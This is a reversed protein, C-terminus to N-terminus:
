ECLGRPVSKIWPRSTFSYDSIWRPSCYSMFDWTAPPVLKERAVDYGWAGISGNSTPFAPDIQAIAVCPAHGLSMNHGLEHAIGWAEPGAVFSARYGDALGAAGFFPGSIVGMYQGTAGEMRRLAETLPLLVFADSSSTFVPAHVRVNLDGVPLWTRLPEFYEHQANVGRLRDVIASDPRQSWLFPVLTLDLVPMTHVEVPLRGTEPIRRPLALEPDLTGYPDIHIVMELGPRVVDGPIEANASLDLDGEVMEAPVLAARSAIHVSHVLAGNIHFDARIPPIRAGATETGVVFVRLLADEGAVLPVPFEPSQVAQTLYAVSGSLPDCRPVWSVPVATLWDQFDSDTPACLGTQSTRLTTLEALAAMSSPLVGSLQPNDNLALWRLDALNGIETPLTGTLDNEALGLVQLFPPSTIEPPIPGGLENDGLTLYVLGRARGLAAPISGELKNGALELNSLSSLDGLEPPISGTLLNSGLGLARLSGLDGLERPIAGTLENGSLWLTRLRGLEGLEPPVPGTLSNNDLFLEDLRDLGGLEPPITGTLEPNSRLGLTTLNTLQGLEPPLIGVLGNGTLYLRTVRGAADTEVGHWNRLSARSAWNANDIWDAGGTSEYLAVLIDRDSLAACELGTGERSPVANMWARFVEDRPECLGTGNYGFDRLPLARLTLPLRGSLDNDAIRLRSIRTLQGLTAPLSGTLGNGALDLSVVRGLSDTEVGYWEDLSGTLWGEFNTWDAGGTALYLSTLVARDADNCIPNPPTSMGDLWDLFEGTGPICLGANGSVDIGGPLDLELFENPIAGTLRNRALVLRELKTLMSLARPVNGTLRNGSLFLNELGTLEGLEEPISGILENDALFLNQLNALDGLKNPVGGTLANGSLTLRRLNTLNGLEPPIPGSFQNEGLVLSTLNSLRGIASPIGGELGNFALSFVRLSSLNGVEPPISGSLLNFYLVLVELDVLDGLESPIAGTLANRELRLEKLHRLASLQPPISGALSNRDLVLRVVQGLSDTEVGHWEGLPVDALWNERNDWQPGGTAQYFVALAAREPNGVVAVEASDLASGAAAAVVAIGDGLARVRGEDDVTAVSADSSSWVITAGPVPNGTEDHALATLLVTEGPSLPTSPAALLVMSVEQNVTMSASGSAGEASAMVVATGNGFARAVGADDVNVVTPDSSAWTVPQDAIVQSNQDRVQATLQVTSGLASLGATEPTVSVSTPRSPEPPVAM